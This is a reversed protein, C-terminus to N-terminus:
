IRNMPSRVVQRWALVQHRPQSVSAKIRASRPNRDLGNKEITMSVVKGLDVVEFNPSADSLTEAEFRQYVRAAREWLPTTRLRGLSWWMKGLNTHPVSRTESSREQRSDRSKAVGLEISTPIKTM